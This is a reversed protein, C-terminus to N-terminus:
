NDSQRVHFQLEAGSTYSDFKLRVGTAHSTGVAALDASKNSQNTFFTAGQILAATNLSDFCEDIDFQCTGSLGTVVYTAPAQGNRWNLPIIQTIIEDVPGITIASGVAGDAAIQTITRWYETTEVTNGNVGTVTGTQAIGDQDTGTITFTVTNIDGGCQIGIQVGKIGDSYGADTINFVAATGLDCLAGDLVVNGAGGLTQSEAIGNTDVVIPDIDYKRYIAM